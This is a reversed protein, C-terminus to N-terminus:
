STQSVDSVALSSIEPAFTDTGTGSVTVTLTGTCSFPSTGGSDDSAQVTWTYNGQAINRVEASINVNLTSGSSLTGNTLTVESEGSSMSWGGGVGGGTFTFDSSPRTIKIWTYSVSDTNQISFQFTNTSNTTISTPSVTATCSSITAEATQVWVIFTIIIIFILYRKLM